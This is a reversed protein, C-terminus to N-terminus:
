RSLASVTTSWRYLRDDLAQVCSKHQHATLAKRVERVRKMGTAYWTVELQALAMIAYRCAEEPNGAAAEVAALDGLIVSRQKVDSAPMDTLVQTLTKRAQPLHAPGAQLETNGKFAALRVSSFWDMWAPLAPGTETTLKDEAQAVLHLALQSNGCRTECEAEVADLWAQFTASAGGRRAYTRAAAMCEIAPARDGAWGPIFAKHALAASGLLEDDAQGAAQLALGLSKDAKEPEAFDFFEIRGALLYSESLALAIRERTKGGTQPLLSCGLDTQTIVSPHLASPPVSWYLKRHSATVAGYHEAVRSPQLAPSPQVPVSTFGGATLAGVRGGQVPDTGDLAGRFGLNELPQNFIEALARQQEPRPVVWNTEWRSVQRTSVGLKEALAAQSYGAGRRAARLRENVVSKPM